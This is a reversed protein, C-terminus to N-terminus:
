IRVAFSSTCCNSSTSTAIGRRSANAACDADPQQKPQSQWKEWGAPGTSSAHTDHPPACWWRQELSCVHSLHIPSKPSLERKQKLQQSSAASMLTQRLLDRYVILLEDIPTTRTDGREYDPRERRHARRGQQLGAAHHQARAEWGRRAFALRALLPCALQECAAEARAAKVISLRAELLRQEFRLKCGGWRERPRARSAELLALSRDLPREEPRGLARRTGLCLPRPLLLNFCVHSSTSLVSM